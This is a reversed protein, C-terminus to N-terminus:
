KKRQQLAIRSCIKGNKYWLYRDSDLVQTSPTINLFTQQMFLIQSYSIFM